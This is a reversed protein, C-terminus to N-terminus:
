SSANRHQHLFLIQKYAAEDVLQIGWGLAELEQNLLQLSMPRKSDIFEIVDEIFYPLEQQHLGKQEFWTTLKDLTNNM